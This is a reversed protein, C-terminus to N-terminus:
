EEHNQVGQFFRGYVGDIDASGGRIRPFGRREAATLTVFAVGEARVRAAEATEGLTALDFPDGGARATDFPDIGQGPGFSDEHFRVAGFGAFGIWSRPDRARGGRGGRYVHPFDIFTVGDSSVSVVLPEFYLFGPDAEDRFANEFVALDAGPGDSVRGCSWALTISGLRTQDLSFVDGGGGYDGAGRVGNAARNPDGFPGFTGAQPDIVRDAYSPGLCPTPAPQHCGALFLCVLVGLTARVRDNRAGRRPAVPLPSLAIKDTM